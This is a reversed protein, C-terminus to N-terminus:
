IVRVVPELVAYVGEPTLCGQIHQGALVDIWDTSVGREYGMRSIELKVPRGSHIAEDRSIFGLWTVYRYEGNRQRVGVTERRVNHADLRINRKNLQRILVLMSHSYGTNCVSAM